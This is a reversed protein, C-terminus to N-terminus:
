GGIVRRWWSREPRAEGTHPQSTQNEPASRDETPTRTPSGSEPSERPEEEAPAELQPPIRDLARLLLRRNEDNARREAELQGRLYEVQDRLIEVLEGQDSAGATPKAAGRRRRRLEEVYAPSLRWGRGNTQDPTISGHLEDAELATRLMQRIRGPTLDLATAAQEVSYFHEEEVAQM